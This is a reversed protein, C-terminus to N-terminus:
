VDNMPGVRDVVWRLMEIWDAM